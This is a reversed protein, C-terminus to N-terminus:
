ANRPVGTFACLGPACASAFARNGALTALACRASLAGFIAAPAHQTAIGSRKRLRSSGGVCAGPPKGENDRLLLFPDSVTAKAAIHPMLTLAMGYAHNIPEHLVEHMM